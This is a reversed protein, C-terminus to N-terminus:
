RSRMVSLSHLKLYIDFADIYVLIMSVMSSPMVGDEMVLVKLAVKTRNWSGEFVRGFGGSGIEHGFEVEYSTVMWDEMEVQRGSFTTLYRLTYAFFQQERNDDSGTQLRRQLSVMMPMTNREHANLTAMLQQHNTELVTLRHDLEHQDVARANDNRAQWAHIYLLASIQFSTASMAIRRHYENIRSIRRDKTFLLNLFGRSAEKQVFTTIEDLLANLDTLPTSTQAQLLRRTRYENDLTCLLQAISASLAQLQRKSAQAQEVSSWIFRLLSVAHALYPVPAL